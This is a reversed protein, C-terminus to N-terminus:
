RRPPCEESPAGPTCAANPECRPDCPNKPTCNPQCNPNCKAMGVAGRIAATAESMTDSGLIATLSAQQVNGVGMWTSFVCPSVQGNPGISACGDGCHGCLGSPDPTAHQAGRGYPRVHDVGIRQVGLARLEKEAEAARDKDHSIIGVRLPIGLGVAKVINGRTRGHSPRGTMANHEGASTSYYSTALSVGDSQLLQWWEPTIHVLNSYVEVELGLSLAHAAIERGHPHMTVEGGILQVATVGTGSAQGLLSIWDKRSMTGHDGEPGSSNYCHACELQCKRTLDLWLFKTPKETPATPSVEAITM